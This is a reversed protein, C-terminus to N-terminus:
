RPAGENREIDPRREAGDRAALVASLEARNRVGVKGLINSVHREVTKRSLFLREAIEPNTDGRAVLQAVELERATLEDVTGGAAGRRWTRVGLARLEREALRELVVAGQGAAARAVERFSEAARGRDVTALIRAGDLRIVTAELHLRLRDTEAALGDLEAAVETADRTGMDLLSETWRRQVVGWPSPSTREDSWAALLVRALGGDGVRAAAQAAALHFDAACRPCGGAAAAQIGAELYEAVPAGARVRGAWKTLVQLFPIQRHADVANSAAAALSPAAAEWDGRVIQLEDPLSRSRARIKGHDGARAVLAQVEVLVAEAEELRGMDFLAVALWFGADVVVGPVLRRRAENWVFRLREEALDLDSGAGSALGALLIAGLHAVEDHATVALLEETLAAPVRDERQVFVDWRVRLADLTARWAEPALGQPGGARDVLARAAQAAREAIIEGEPLRHELWILVLADIADLAVDRAPDKSGKSAGRAIEIWDRAVGGRELEFAAKAAGLAAAARIPPKTSRDAVDRWRELAYAHDNLEVALTALAVALKPWAPTGSAEEDVIAALERLGDRGLWRRRASGLLREALAQAPLGGLRRHELAARLQAVDDGATRELQESVSRNLERRTEPLLREVAAARLLDHVVQLGGDRGVVLGRDALSAAARLAREAPWGLLTALEGAAVPRGVVAIAGLVGAADDALGRLRTAVVDLARRDTGSALAHLWFPSGGALRWVEAAGAAQLAPAAERLLSLGAERDLPQLSISAVADRELVHRIAEELAAIAPTDRGAVVVLLPQRASAAARLVYLCLAISLEDAWQVDDLTLLTPGLQGIARAAREFIWIPEISTAAPEIHLDAMQLELLAFRRLMEGAAALPVNREPEFGQARLTEVRDLRAAVEALLRTKGQGPDGTVLAVAPGPRERAGRALSLITALERERGVISPLDV